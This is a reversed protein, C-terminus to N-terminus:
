GGPYLAGLDNKKDHLLMHLLARRVPRVRGDTDFTRIQDWCGPNREELDAALGALKFYYESLITDDKEPRPSAMWDALWQLQELGPKWGHESAKSLVGFSDRAPMGKGDITVRAVTESMDPHTECLWNLLAPMANNLGWNNFMIPELQKEITEASVLDPFQKLLSHYFRAMREGTSNDGKLYSGRAKTLEGVTSLREMQPALLSKLEPRGECADLLKQFCELQYVRKPLRM